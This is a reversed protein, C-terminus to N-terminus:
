KINICTNKTHTNLKIIKIYLLTIQQHLLMNTKEELLLLNELTIIKTDLLEIGNQLSKCELDLKNCKILLEDM